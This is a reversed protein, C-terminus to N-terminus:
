YSVWGDVMPRINEILDQVLHADHRFSFLALVRPPRQLLLGLRRRHPFLVHRLM